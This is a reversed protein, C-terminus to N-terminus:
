LSLPEMINNFGHPRSVRLLSQRVEQSQLCRADAKCRCLQFMDDDHPPYERERQGSQSIMVCCCWLSDWLGEHIWGRNHGVSGQKGSNGILHITKFAIFMSTFLTVPHSSLQDM